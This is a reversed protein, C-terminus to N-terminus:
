QQLLFIILGLVGSGTIFAVAAIAGQAFAIQRKLADIDKMREDNAKNWTASASAM